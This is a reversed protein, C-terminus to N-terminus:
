WLAMPDFKGRFSMFSLPCLGMFRVLEVLVEKKLPARAQPLKGNDEVIQRWIHNLSSLLPRNFMAIYVFGGGVVQLERQSATGRGVLELALRVYKAVKPPKAYLTGEEGDLWAGQVEAGLAQQVTKKPHRPLGMQSYCERVQDVVESTTGAVLGATKRDLKQLQDFNDLYVRFLNPFVSFCRDRRLEQITLGLGRISGVAKQIVARHIHQAVGVSNLYGMPLVRGALYWRKATGGPPILCRPAEKGFAMFKAWAPPTRFLYFFCRLDESSTVLVDDDHLHLSGLQTIAPLTGVDGSLSRSVMNWPKLNMILRALKIDDKIEDKAVSFLGNLLPLGNIKFIVDESVVECLGRQVLGQAVEEWGDGQIMVSPPKLRVQDEVPLITEDINNIFHAVGGSCFDRIDLCGVEPPLSSEVSKWNIPMALRVEEGSYDLGKESFFSKFNLDPLPEELIASGTVVGELRKCVALAVPSIKESGGHEGYSHMSNLSALVAQLFASHPEPHHNLHAVPLPFLDGKGTTSRPRCSPKELIALVDVVLSGLSGVKIVGSTAGLCENVRQRVKLHFEQSSAQEHRWSGEDEQVNFEADKQSNDHRWAQGSGEEELARLRAEDILDEIEESIFGTGVLKEDKGSTEERRRKAVREVGSTEEESPWFHSRMSGVQSSIEELEEVEEAM